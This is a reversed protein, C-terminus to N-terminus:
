GTAPSILDLVEIITRWADSGTDILAFHGGTVEILEATAGAGTAAEVYRQSQSFPVSTDDPAHLCWVPVDLPVQRTPDALDM